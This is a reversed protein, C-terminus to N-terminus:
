ALLAPPREISVLDVSSKVVFPVFRVFFRTPVDEAL